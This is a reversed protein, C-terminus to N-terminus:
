IGLAKKLEKEFESPKMQEEIFKKYGTKNNLIVTSPITGSWSQDIRPCFYNADSENLWVIRSAYKHRSVFSQIRDPYFSPLDVSVLLLKVKQDKYKRSIKELYPIEDVCPKCFTAWFNIVLVSDSEGMYQEVENIKWSPIDQAGCTYVGTFLVALIFYKILKM